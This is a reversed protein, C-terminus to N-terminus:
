KPTPRFPAPRTPFPRAGPCRLINPRKKKPCESTIHRIERCFYCAGKKFLTECEPMTLADIDIEDPLDEEANYGLYDVDMANPDRAPGRTNWANFPHQM